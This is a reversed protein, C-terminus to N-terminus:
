DRIHCIANAGISDRERSVGARRVVVTAIGHIPPRIARGALHGGMVQEEPILLNLLKEGGTLPLDLEIAARQRRTVGNFHSPIFNALSPDGMLRQDLHWLGLLVQLSYACFFVFTIDLNWCVTLSARPTVSISSMTASDM